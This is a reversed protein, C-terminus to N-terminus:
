FSFGFRKLDIKGKKVIVKEKKLLAIKARKGKAYGGVSGDSRVVRHCPIEPAFPNKNLINGVARSARPNGAAEALLRYTTVRGAPVVRLAQYVKEKFPKM